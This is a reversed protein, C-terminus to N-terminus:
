NKYKQQVLLALLSLVKLQVLPGAIAPLNMSAHMCRYYNLYQLKPVIDASRTSIAPLSMSAHM